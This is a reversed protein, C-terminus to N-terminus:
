RIRSEYKSALDKADQKVSNALDSGKSSRRFDASQMDFADARRQISDAQDNLRQVEEKSKLARQQATYLARRGLDKATDSKLLSSSIGLGQMREIAQQYVKEGRQRAEALIEQVASPVQGLGTGKDLSKKEKASQIKDAAVSLGLSLALSVLMAITGSIVAM